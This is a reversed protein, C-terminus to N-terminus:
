RIYLWSYASAITTDRPEGDWGRPLHCASRRRGAVLLDRGPAGQHCARRQGHKRGDALLLPPRVTLIPKHTDFVHQERGDAEAVLEGVVVAIADANDCP